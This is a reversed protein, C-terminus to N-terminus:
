DHSTETYRNLVDQALAKLGAEREAAEAIRASANEGEASLRELQEQWAALEERRRDLEQQADSVAREREVLGAEREGLAQATAQWTEALARLRESEEELAHVFGAFGGDSRGQAQVGETTAIEGWPEALETM